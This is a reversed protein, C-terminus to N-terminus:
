FGINLGVQVTQDLFSAGTISSAGGTTSNLTANFVYKARYGLDISMNDSVDFKVGAGLQAAPAFSTTNYTAATDITINPMIAALGAGGGIYPTFGSGTNLDLWVNGLLYATGTNGTATGTGGSSAFSSSVSHSVYSLEGELRVSDGLHTGVAGGIIYGSGIPVSLNFPGQTSVGSLTTALGYGGFVSIYGGGSTTLVDAAPPPAM